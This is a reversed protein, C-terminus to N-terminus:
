ITQLTGTHTQTLVTLAQIDLVPQTSNPGDQGRLDNQIFQGGLIAVQSSSPFFGSSAIPETAYTPMATACFSAAFAFHFNLVTRSKARLARRFLARVVSM